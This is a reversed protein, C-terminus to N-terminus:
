ARHPTRQRANRVSHPPEAGQRSARRRTSVSFLLTTPLNSVFANNDNSVNCINLGQNVLQRADVTKSNDFDLKIMYACPFFSASAKM